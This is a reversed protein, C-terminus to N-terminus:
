VQQGHVSRRQSNVEDQKRKEIKIRPRPWEEESISNADQLRPDLLAYTSDFCLEFWKNVYLKLGKALDLLDKSRKVTDLGAAYPTLVGHAFLHRIGEVVCLCCDSSGDFFEQVKEKLQNSVRSALTSKLKLNTRLDETLDEDLVLQREPNSDNFQQEYHHFMTPREAGRLVDLITWGYFVLLLTMYKHARKTKNLGQQAERFMRGSLQRENASSMGDFENLFKAALQAQWCDAEDLTQQRM